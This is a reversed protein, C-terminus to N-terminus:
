IEGASKHWEASAHPNTSRSGVRKAEEDLLQDCYQLRALISEAQKRGYVSLVDIRHGAYELVVHFSDGYYIPKQVVQGNAAAERTALDNRRREREARDHPLLLFRHALRRDFSEWGRLRRVGISELDLEIQYTIRFTKRAVFHLAWGSVLAGGIAVVLVPLEPHRWDPLTAMSVMLLGFGLVSSIGDALKATFPTLEHPAM